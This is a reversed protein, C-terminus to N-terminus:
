ARLQESFELMATYGKWAGGGGALAPLRRARRRHEPFGPHHATAGIADHGRTDDRNVTTHTQRSRPLPNSGLNVLAVAFRGSCFKCAFHWPDHGAVHRSKPAEM